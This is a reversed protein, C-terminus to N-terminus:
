LNKSEYREDGPYVHHVTEESIRIQFPILTKHTGMMKNGRLLEDVQVYHGMQFLIHLLPPALM